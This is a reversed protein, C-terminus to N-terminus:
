GLSRKDQTKPLIAVFRDPDDKLLPRLMEITRERQDILAVSIRIDKRQSLLDRNVPIITSRFYYVLSLGVISAGGLVIRTAVSSVESMVIINAIIMLFGGAMVLRLTQAMKNQQRAIDIHDKMYIDLAHSVSPEVKVPRLRSSLFGFILGDGLDEREERHSGEDSTFINKV